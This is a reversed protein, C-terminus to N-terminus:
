GSLCFIERIHSIATSYLLTSYLLASYLLTSYLVYRFHMVAATTVPLEVLAYEGEVAQRDKPARKAERESGASEREREKGVGGGSRGKSVKERMSAQGNGHGNVDYSKFQLSLLRRKSSIRYKEGKAKALARSLAESQGGHTKKVKVKSKVKKNMRRIGKSGKKINLFDSTLQASRSTKHKAKDYLESSNLRSDRTIKRSNSATDKLDLALALTDSEKRSAVKKEKKTGITRHVQVKDSYPLLPDAIDTVTEEDRKGLQHVPMEVVLRTASFYVTFDTRVLLQRRREVKRRNRKGAVYTGDNDNDNDNDNDTNNDNDGDTEEVNFPSEVARAHTYTGFRPSSPSSEEDGDKDGEEKNINININVDDTAM